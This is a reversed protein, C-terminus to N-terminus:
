PARDHCLIAGRQEAITGAGARRGMRAIARRTLGTARGRRDDPTSALAAAARQRRVQGYSLMSFPIMLSM